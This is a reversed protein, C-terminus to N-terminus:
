LMSNTNALQNYVYINPQQQYYARIMQWECRSSCALTLCDVVFCDTRPKITHSSSAANVTANAKIHINERHLNTYSHINTHTSTECVGLFVPLLIISAAAIPIKSPFFRWVYRHVHVELFHISIICCLRQLLLCCVRM